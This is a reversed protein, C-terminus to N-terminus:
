LYLRNDYIYREVEPPVLYRIPLNKELRERIESSSLEIRHIDLRTLNGPLEAPQDVLKEGPRGIVVVECLGFLQEPKKWSWIDRLNDEGILFFFENGSYEDKLAAITDISFSPGSRKFEIDSVSFSSNGKVALQVMEFRTRASTKRRGTKHPPVAAPVFIVRTLALAGMADQAVLLHGTHIPDFTGGLIGIKEM